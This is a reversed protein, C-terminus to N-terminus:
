SLDGAEVLEQYDFDITADRGFLRVKVVKSLLNLGIVKGRGEPTNIEKGYDPM